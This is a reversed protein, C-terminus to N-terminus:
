RPCRAVGTSDFAHILATFLRELDAETHDLCISIRIRATGDPVTPPRIAPALIGADRLASAIRVAEPNGGVMVPIIQTQSAGTDFGEARLRERLGRAMAQVRAGPDPDAGILRLAALAAAAVAPAPATTFVFTRAANLLWNAMEGDCCVFGGQAGLAKSFTGMSVAVRSQLGLQSAVGAGHPGWVGTAHAEDVMLDAGAEAAASAIDALPAVDGDMSFISETVVLKRADARAAALKTRLDEVDNHRFRRLRAGSLRCGDLLCAHALRDAFVDCGADLLAPIVGTAAMMGSGFLRAAPYGKLRAVSEELEVHLPRTGTVLRSAGAGAGFDLAARAAAERLEPRRTFGLYDNSAFNLFPRGTPDTWGDSSQTLIQDSRLLGRERRDKLQDRIWANTASM